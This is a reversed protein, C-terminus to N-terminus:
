GASDNYISKANPLQPTLTPRTLAHIADARREAVGLEQAPIPNAQQINRTIGITLEERILFVMITSFM